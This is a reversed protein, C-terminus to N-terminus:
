GNVRALYPKAGGEGLVLIKQTGQTAMEILSSTVDGPPHIPSSVGNDGFAPDLKGNAHFRALTVSSGIGGQVNRRTGGMLPRAGEDVALGTATFFSPALDVISLEGNNFTADRKGDVDLRTLGGAQHRLPFGEGSLAVLVLIKDNLAIRVNRCVCSWAPDTIQVRGGAGFTIDLYGRSEYCMVVGTNPGESGVVLIQGYRTNEFAHISLNIDGVLLYGTGAFSPALQGERDIKLIYSANRVRTLFMLSGDTQQSAQLHNESFIARAGSANSSRRAIRRLPLEPLPYFGLGEEGFSTDLTGDHLIRCAMPVVPNGIDLAYGLVIVSGNNDLSIHSWSVGYPDPPNPLRKYGKLGEAGGFSTDIEGAAGDLRCLWWDLDSLRVIAYIVDHENDAAIAYPDLYYGEGGPLEFYVFGEIGFTTDISGPAPSQRPSTHKSSASKPSAIAQSM